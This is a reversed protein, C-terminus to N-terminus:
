DIQLSSLNNDQNETKDDANLEKKRNNDDESLSSSGLLSPFFCHSHLESVDFLSIIKQLFPTWKRPM